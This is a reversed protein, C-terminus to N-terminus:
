CSSHVTILIVGKYGEALKKVELGEWGSAKRGYKGRQREEFM